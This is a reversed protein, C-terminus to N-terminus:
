VEVLRAATVPVAVFGLSRRKELMKCRMSAEQESTTLIKARIAWSSLGLDIMLKSREFCDSLNTMPKHAEGLEFHLEQPIMAM